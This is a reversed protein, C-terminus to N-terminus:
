RAQFIHNAEGPSLWSVSGSAFEARFSKKAPMVTVSPLGFIM